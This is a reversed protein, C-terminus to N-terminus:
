FNAWNGNLSKNLSFGLGNFIMFRFVNVERLVRKVAKTAPIVKAGM